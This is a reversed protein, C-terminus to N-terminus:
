QLVAPLPVAIAANYVLPGGATTLTLTSSSVTYSGASELNALYAQEQAMIEESCAMNTTRLPGVSINNTPGAMMTGGDVTIIQMQTGSVTYSVAAPMLRLFIEEQRTLADSTCATLTNSIGSIALKNGQQTSYAGNYDNCGTTGSV